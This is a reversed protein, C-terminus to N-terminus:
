TRIPKLVIVLENKESGEIQWGLKSGETLSFQRVIGAPITRLSKSKSTAATIITMEGNDRM